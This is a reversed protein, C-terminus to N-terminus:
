NDSNEREVDVPLFLPGAWRLTSDDPQDQIHQLENQKLMVVVPSFELGKFWYIGPKTPPIRTWILRATM